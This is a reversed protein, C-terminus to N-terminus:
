GGADPRRPAGFRAADTAARRGAGRPDASAWCSRPSTPPRRRAPRSGGRGTARPSSCGTSGPVAGVLPRGDLALPRACARLGRTPADAIAPVYRAGRTACGRRSTARTPSSRCSRRARAVIRGDATVLSFGFPEDAEGAAGADPDIAADIDAEELVHRPPSASRRARRDRGLVPPDPALGGTPDVLTRAGRAPPSSSRARGAIVGTPPRSASRRPARRPAVRADRVRVSTPAARARGARRVRADGVGARGPLRHRPPGGRPRRRPRARAAALAAADVFPPGSSPTPRRRDRRRRGAARRRGAWCCSGPRAGGLRFPASRRCRRCSRPSSTPSRGTAARAVGPVARRPGPRVPVLRRGLQPGVGGGRDGGARVAHGAGRARRPGRRAGHRRDRRRHDRRRADAGRPWGVSLRRRAAAAIERLAGVLRDVEAATNYHTLGIRLVGEPELGLREIPGSPTSTAGGPRSGGTAWRWAVRRPRSARRVDAAATPTREDFRARDTIGWLRAGPIAELGDLLRAFLPMEYARIAAM